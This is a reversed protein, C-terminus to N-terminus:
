RVAASSGTVEPPQTISRAGPVVRLADWPGTVDFGMTIASGPSTAEVNAKADMTRDLLSSRGQVGARVGAGTLKTDTIAAVGDAVTVHLTAQEFPTRAGWWAFEPKGDGRRVLDALALGSLEGGKVTATARGNLTRVIEAPSEGAGEFALQGQASGSAWRPVGLDALLAAVDLRDFTSQAKVEVGDGAHTVVARGKVIGKHISARNVSAEYRGAKV